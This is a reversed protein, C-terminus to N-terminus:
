TISVKATHARQVGIKRGWFEFDKLEEEAKDCKDRTTFALM